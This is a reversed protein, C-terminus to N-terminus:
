KEITTQFSSLIQQILPHSLDATGYFRFEFLYEKGREFVFLSEKSQPFVKYKVIENGIQLSDYVGEPVYGHITKVEIKTIESNSKESTLIIAGTKTEELSFYSPYLISYNIGPSTYAVSQTVKEISPNEDKNNEPQATPSLYSEEELMMETKQETKELLAVKEKLNKNTIYLYGIVTFFIFVMLLFLFLYPNKRQEIRSTSPSPTLADEESGHPIDSIQSPTNMSIDYVSFLCKVVM